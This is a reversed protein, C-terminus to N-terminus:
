ELIGGLVPPIIFWLAHLTFSYLRRHRRVSLSVHVNDTSNGNFWLLGDPQDTQFRIHFEEHRNRGHYSDDLQSIDYVIWTTGNFRLWRERPPSVPPTPTATTVGDPQRIRDVACDCRVYDFAYQL